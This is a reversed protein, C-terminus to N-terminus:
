EYGNCYGTYEKMANIAREYIEETNARCNIDDIKANTLATESRLKELEYQSRISGMRLFYAVVSPPATGEKLQKEAQNMALNILYNERDEISVTPNTPM